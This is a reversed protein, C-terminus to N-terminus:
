FTEEVCSVQRASMNITAVSPPCMFLPFVCSEPAEDRLAPKMSGAFRRPMQLMFVGLALNWLTHYRFCEKGEEIDISHVSTKSQVFLELPQPLKNIVYLVATGSAAMQENEANKKDFVVHKPANIQVPDPIGRCSKM